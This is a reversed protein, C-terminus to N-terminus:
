LEAAFRCLLRKRECVLMHAWLPDVFPEIHVQKTDLGPTMTKSVNKAICRLEGLENWYAMFPDISINGM